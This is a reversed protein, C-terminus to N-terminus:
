ECALSLSRALMRSTDIATIMRRMGTNRRKKIGILLGMIAVTAASKTIRNETTTELTVPM